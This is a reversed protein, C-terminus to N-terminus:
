QIMRVLRNACDLVFVRCDDDVWLGLPWNFLASKGTDNQMGAIGMGSLTRVLRNPTMIRVAHNFTDAIYLNGYKDLSLASPNNFCALTGYEDKFGTGSGALTEVRGDTHILRIRINGSDAVYVNGTGDVSLGMPGRFKAAYKTGDQFGAFGSGALLTVTGDLELRFVRHQFVDSVILHGRDYVIGTPCVPVSPTIITATKDPSLVVVRGQSADAVFLTGNSDLAVGAPDNVPLSYSAWQGNPQIELLQYHASDLAYLKGSADGVIGNILQSWGETSSGMDAYSTVIGSNVIRVSNL